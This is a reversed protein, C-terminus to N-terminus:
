TLKWDAARDSRFWFTTHVAGSVNLMEVRAGNHDDDLHPQSVSGVGNSDWRGFDIYSLPSGPELLRQAQRVSSLQVNILSASATGLACQAPSLTTGFLGAADRACLFRDTGAAAPTMGGAATVVDDGLAVMIASSALAARVWLWQRTAAAVAATTDVTAAGAGYTTFRFTGAPLWELRYGETAGDGWQELTEAAVPLASPAYVLWALEVQTPMTGCLPARVVARPENARWVIAKLQDKRRGAPM